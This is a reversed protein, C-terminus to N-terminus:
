RSVFLVSLFSGAVVHDSRRTAAFGRGYFVIGLSSAAAGSAGSKVPQKDTLVMIPHCCRTSSGAPRQFEDGTESQARELRCLKPLANWRSLEAVCRTFVSMALALLWGKYKAVEGKGLARRTCRGFRCVLWAEQLLHFLGVRRVSIAEHTFNSWSRCRFDILGAAETGPM